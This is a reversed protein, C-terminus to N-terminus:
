MIRWLALLAILKQKDQDNNQSCSEPLPDTGKRANCAALLSYYPSHRITEAPPPQPQEVNGPKVQAQSRPVFWSSFNSDSLVGLSVGTLLITMFIAIGTLIRAPKSPESNNMIIEKNVQNESIAVGCFFEGNHSGYDKEGAVAQNIVNKAVDM